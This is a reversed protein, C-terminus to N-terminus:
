RTPTEMMYSGWEEDRLQWNKGSYVLENVCSTLRGPRVISLAEAAKMNKKQRRDFQVVCVEQFCLQATINHLFRYKTSALKSKVYGSM